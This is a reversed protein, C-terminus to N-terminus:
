SEIQPGGNRLKVGEVNENPVESMYSQVKPTNNNSVSLNVAPKKENMEFLDKFTLEQIKKVDLDLELTRYITQKIESTMISDMGLQVMTLSQDIQDLFIISLCILM